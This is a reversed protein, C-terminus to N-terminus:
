NVNADRRLIKNESISVSFIKKIRDYPDGIEIRYKFNLISLPTKIHRQEKFDSYRHADSELLFHHSKNPANCLSQALLGPSYAHFLKQASACASARHARSTEKYLTQNQSLVFAPLTSSAHLDFSIGPTAICRSSLQSLTRLM